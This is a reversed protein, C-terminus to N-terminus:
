PSQMHYTGMMAVQVPKYFSNPSPCAAGWNLDMNVSLRKDKEWEVKMDGVEWSEQHLCFQWSTM